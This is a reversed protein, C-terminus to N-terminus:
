VNKNREICVKCRDEKKCRKEGTEQRREVCSPCDCHLHSVGYLYHWRPGNIHCAEQFKGRFKPLANPENTGDLLNM